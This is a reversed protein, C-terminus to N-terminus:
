SGTSRYHRIGTRWLLGAAAAAVVAILPSAYGLHAPAGLPDRRDLLTLAPYYAVFAFGLGYAFLRRL